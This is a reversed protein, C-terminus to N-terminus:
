ATEKNNRTAAEPTSPRKSDGPLSSGEASRYLVYTFLAAIGVGAWTLIEGIVGFARRYIFSAVPIKPLERAVCM